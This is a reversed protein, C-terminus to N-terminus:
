RKLTLLLAELPGDKRFPKADYRRLLLDLKSPHSVPWDHHIVLILGPLKGLADTAETQYSILPRRSLVGQCIPRQHIMQYYMFRRNSLYDAPWEYVPWGAPAAALAEYLAPVAPREMVLPFARMDLVALLGVLLAAVAPRRAYPKWAAVAQAALVAAGLWWYILFRATFRNQALGPFFRVVAYPLPIWTVTDGAKLWPGPALALGLLALVAWPRAGDARFVARLALVLTVYGVYPFLTPRLFEAVPFAFTVPDDWVPSEFELTALDRVAPWLVPLAIVAALAAPLVARRAALRRDPRALVFALCFLPLQAIYTTSSGAILAVAVGFGVASRRSGTELHAHLALFAFPLWQTCSLNVHRLHEYRYNSFGYILGAVLAAWRQRTVREALLYAGLGSLFFTALVNANWALFIGPLGRVAALLPLVALSAVPSLATLTLTAGDPHFLYDTFTFAGRGELLSARTWWLSWVNVLLDDDLMRTYAPLADTLHAALPWTLAVTAVALVFVPGAHRM